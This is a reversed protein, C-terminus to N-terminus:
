SVEHPTTAQFLAGIAAPSRGSYNFACTFEKLKVSSISPIRLPEDFIGSNVYPYARDIGSPAVAAAGQITWRRTSPRSSHASTAAAKVLKAELCEAFM